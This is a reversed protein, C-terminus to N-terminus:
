YATDVLSAVKYRSKCDRVLFGDNYLERMWKETVAKSLERTFLSLNKIKMM